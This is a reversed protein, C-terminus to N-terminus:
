KKCNDITESINKVAKDIRAFSKNINKDLKWCKLYFESNRDVDYISCIIATVTEAQQEKLSQSTVDKSDTHGLEGHAIEHILTGVNEVESLNSNLIIKKESIYGGTAIELAKTNVTYGLSRSVSKLRKLSIDARTTMNKNIEEGETDAIDFVPVSKYTVLRVFESGNKEVIEVHKLNGKYEDKPILITNPALIWIAKAGKKVTRNHVKQWQKFGAVQSAEACHLIFQNFYSYNHFQAMSSLIRKYEESDMNEVRELLDTVIKQNDQSIKKNRM